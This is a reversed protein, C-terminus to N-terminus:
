RIRLFGGLSRLWLRLAPRVPLVSVFYSVDAIKRCAYGVWGTLHVIGLDAVAWAGGLPVVTNWKAPPVYNVTPKRELVRTINEALAAAQKSAAQALAPVRAGTVPHKISACDGLAWARPTNQVAFTADVQVFGKEDVPFGWEKVAARPKMGAAWVVVDASMLGDLLVVGEKKIELVNMNTKVQVGLATLRALSIARMCPSFMGLITPSADALTISFCGNPIREARVMRQLSFALESAAECGNPGGGVVVINLCAHKKGELDQLAQAIHHRISLADELTKMRVAHTEVGSIGFTAAEGGTALVIDDFPISEQGALRVTHASWDIGEIRGRVFHIKEDKRHLHPNEAYPLSASNRLVCAANEEGTGLCGMAVEYLLPTYVHEANADILTITAHGLRVRRKLLELATRLGGFGAGLIVIRHPHPVPM